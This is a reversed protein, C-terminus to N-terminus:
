RTCGKIFLYLGLLETYVFLTFLSAKVCIKGFYENKIKSSAVVFSALTDLIKSLM